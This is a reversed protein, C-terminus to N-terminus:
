TIYNITQNKAGVICNYVDYLDQMDIIPQENYEKKHKTHKENFLHYIVPEFLQVLM